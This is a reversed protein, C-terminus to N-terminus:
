APAPCQHLDIVPHPYRHSTATNLQSIFSNGSHRLMELQEKNNGIAPMRTKDTRPLLIIGQMRAAPHFGLIRMLRRSPLM